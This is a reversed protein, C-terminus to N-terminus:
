ILIQVNLKKSGPGGAHLVAFSPTVFDPAEDHDSCGDSGFNGRAGVIGQRVTAELCIPLCCHELLDHASRLREECHKRFYGDHSGCIGGHEDGTLRASSLFEDRARDM